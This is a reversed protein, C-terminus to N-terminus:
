KEKGEPAASIKGQGVDIRALMDAELTQGLQQLARQIAEDVTLAGRIQDTIERTLRERAARHQTEELLRLTEAVIGMREAVTEVLAIEDDTWKRARDEDHIGLTGIVQDRLQIPAVLAAHDVDRADRGSVVVTSQRTLAEQVEPLSAWIGRADRLPTIGPLTMEYDTLVTSAKQGSWAERVYQQQIMELDRLARQTQEFLRINEIANALQDALAQLVTVDEQAFAASERSQLTLAGIVGSRSKLPLALESRTEPLLPNEFRVPAVGVDLAIRAEGQAICQGIISSGGVELRHRRAVMEAGARGTAARLVAQKRQVASSFEAPTATMDVLFLGAYYLELQELLLEVSQQLLTDIDLVETAIRAVDAVAQLQRGRRRLVVETRKRDTIDYTMGVFGTIHGAEDRLPIKTTSVWLKEGTTQDVAAEEKDIVSEGSAMLAQEDAYYQSALEHPFIDLDSKGIVEEQTRAGLLGLHAINNILFRSQRDKIYVYNPLNDILTRLLNRDASLQIETNKRETIDRSIGFTGFINGKHDRMPMKTTTVWTDPRDEWTEREELNLLPEGTRIIRQEDEYAPRAHEETFFDFDTKGIADAPDSLGFRETQSRSVRIFRSERDKFYIQDPFNDMLVNMLYQEYELAEYLRANTIANALQDALTQLISIDEPSFAAEQTSQITLAGVVDGRSILPLALESRTDPLLLHPRRVTDRDVDLAIRAERNAVCWGIMSTGGVQLRHGEEVMRKGAEGSGAKLVAWQVAPDQPDPEVLFLGVYYLSFRDRVLTVVQQVLDDTDLLASATRSVEAATQLQLARGALRETTLVGQLASSIQMRLMDYIAGERPGVEFCVKGLHENRFHLLEIVLSYRRDGPLVEPPLVDRMPYRQKSKQELGRTRDFALVLQALTSPTPTEQSAELGAYMSLYFSPIDLQPLGYLMANLLDDLMGASVFVQDIERLVGERQATQLRQRAQAQQAASGVQVRAQQLLGEIRQASTGEMVCTLAHARLVSLGNQWASVDGQELLTQRMLDDLVRLFVEASAVTEDQTAEVFADVLRVVRARIAANADDSLSEAALVGVMDSLLAERRTAMAAPFSACPEAPMEPQLRSEAQLVTADLCGCSQRVVLQTRLNVQPPVTAGQLQALVLEVAQRGQERLPQRATTLTPIAYRSDEIDDFGVVAVDDPVRIGRAQLIGLIELAVRDDHAVLAEVDIRPRLQREDFLLRIGTEPTSYHTGSIVLDPDVAIGREALVAVYAEYRADNELHGEQRHFFAIRRYGHVDVLHLMMERMGYDNDILVSSIDTLPMAISAMPLPRYRECFAQLKEQNVRTGLSGAAFILGDLLAKDPLGYLVNNMDDSHPQNHLSGGVFCLLNVDRVRAQAEVGQWIANHYGTTLRDVFFGLTLRRQTSAPAGATKKRSSSGGARRSQKAM